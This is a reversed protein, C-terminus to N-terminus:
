LHIGTGTDFLGRLLILFNCQSMYISTNNVVFAAIFYGEEEVSPDKFQESVIRERTKQEM